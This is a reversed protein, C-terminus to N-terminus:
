PGIRASGTRWIPHTMDVRWKPPYFYDIPGGPQRFTQKIRSRNSALDPRAVRLVKDTECFLNQCDIAKLRRGPLFVRSLDYGLRWLAVEQQDVMWHIVDEYSLGGRDVFCKDIGRIAGPGARTFDDEDFDVVPSYNIDTALQYAMFPGVMPFRHLVYFLDRLTRTRDIEAVIGQDLMHQVLALYGDAKSPFTGFAAPPPPIMYAAGFVPGTAAALVRGYVSVDFTAATPEGAEALLLDWTSERNFLRFLLIRTLVDAPKSSFARDYIVRILRQSVRDSARYANCFRYSGLIPDDTWPPAEGRARAFFIRQREAAFRWYYDLVGERPTPESM